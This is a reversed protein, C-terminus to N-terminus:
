VNRFDKFEIGLKYYCRNVFNQLRNLGKCDKRGNYVMIYPLCDTKKIAEFRYWDDQFESDYGCLIYVMINRPKEGTALLNDIARMVGDEYKVNDFALYIRRKKKGTSGIHYIPLKRVEKATELDMLRFDFGQNYDVMWKNDILEGWLKEREPDALVNNALDIIHKSEPNKMDKYDRVHKLKGECRWVQCFACRRICGRSSFGLGYPFNFFKYDPENSCIECSLKNERRSVNARSFGTGGKFVKQSKRFYRKAIEDAMRENKSFLCSVYVLDFYDQFRNFFVEDGQRRHFRAVKMLAFNPIRLEDACFLGIKM